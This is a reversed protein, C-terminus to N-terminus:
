TTCWRSTSWGTSPPPTVKWSGDSVLTDNDMFANGYPRTNHAALYSLASAARTPAAVGTVVAIANGDQGHRVAGTASDLYAGAAPDWLYTNIATALTRGRQTWRDADGGHGTARALGAAATLARVYLANYYTVEGTRPLFAYDGYGGTGNLGKALLGREDTVSPYWSDLVRVLNPYYNAAYGTDGTYLVYDWSSTM